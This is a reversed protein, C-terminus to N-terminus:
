LNILRYFLNLAKNIIYDEQLGDMALITKNRFIAVSLHHRGKRQWKYNIGPKFDENVLTESYNTKSLQTVRFIGLGEGYRGSINQAARYLEGYLYFFGGGNRSFSKNISLDSPHRHWNGRLSDSFFLEHSENDLNITSLFYTNNHLLINSDAYSGKLLETEDGLKLPFQEFKFLCVNKTATTEPLLYINGSVSDKFVFPYSLHFGKKLISGLDTWKKLDHTQWVNIYGPEGTEQVEALLYLVSNYVFLFPDAFTHIHKKRLRIKRADLEKVLTSLPQELRYNNHEEFVGLSWVRGM